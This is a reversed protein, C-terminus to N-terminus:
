DVGGSLVATPQVVRQEMGAIVRHSWVDFVLPGRGYSLRLNRSPKFENLSHWTAIFSIKKVCFSHEARVLGSPPRPLLLIPTAHHGWRRTFHV